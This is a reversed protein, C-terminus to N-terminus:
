FFINKKDIPTVAPVNLHTGPFNVGKRDTIIGTNLAKITIQHAKIKIINFSLCGDDIKIKANRTVQTFNLKKDINIESNHYGLTYNKHKKIELISLKNKLKVRIKPGGLDMMISISKDLKKECYEILKLNSTGSVTPFKILESLIKLTEPFVQDIMNNQTAM